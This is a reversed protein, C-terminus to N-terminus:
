LNHPLTSQTLQSLPAVLPKCLTEDIIEASLGAQKLYLLHRTRLTKDFETGVAMPRATLKRMVNVAEWWYKDNEFNGVFDFVHQIPREINVSYSIHIM